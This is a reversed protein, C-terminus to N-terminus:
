RYDEPGFASQVYEPRVSKPKQPEVKVPNLHVDEHADVPNVWAPQNPQEPQVAPLVQRNLVLDEHHAARTWGLKTPDQPENKREM